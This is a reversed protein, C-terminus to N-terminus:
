DVIEKDKLDELVAERWRKRARGREKRYRPTKRVTRNEAIREIHGLWQM